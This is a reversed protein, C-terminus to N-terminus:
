GRITCDKGLLTISIHRLSLHRPLTLYSSKGFFTCCPTSHVELPTSWTRTVSVHGRMIHLLSQLIKTKLHSNRKTVHHNVHHYHRDGVNVKEVWMDISYKQVMTYNLLAIQGALQVSDSTGKIGFYM